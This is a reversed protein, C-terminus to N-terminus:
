RETKKAFKIKMSRTVAKDGGAEFEQSGPDAIVCGTFTVTRAVSNDQRLIEVRITRGVSEPTATARNTSPDGHEALWTKWYDMSLGGNDDYGDLELDDYSGTGTPIPTPAVTGASQVEAIKPKFPPNKFKTWLGSPHGDLYVQFKGNVLVNTAQDVQATM